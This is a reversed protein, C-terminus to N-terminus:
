RRTDSHNQWLLFPSIAKWIPQKMRPFSLKKESLKKHEM